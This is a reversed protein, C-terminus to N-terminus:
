NKRKKKIKNLIIIENNNFKIKFIYYRRKLIISDGIKFSKWKSSTETLKM